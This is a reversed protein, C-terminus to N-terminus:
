RNPRHHSGQVRRVASPCREPRQGRPPPLVLRSTCRGDQLYMSARWTSRIPSFISRSIKMPMVAAYYLERSNHVLYPSRTIYLIDGESEKMKELTLATKGSGASGIIILPPQLAYIANQAQDFSIIKDLMNFTAHDPNVYVLPEPTVEELSDLLRIKSEDVVAGRNLFRSKEYAHQKICEPVLAYAEGQYHHIAFLLRNSRDLQARYLNDGGEQGRRLPFIRRM